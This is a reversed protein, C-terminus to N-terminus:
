RATKFIYCRKGGKHTKHEADKVQYVEVEELFVKLDFLDTKLKFFKAAIIEDMRNVETGLFLIRSVEYLTILFNFFSYFVFM